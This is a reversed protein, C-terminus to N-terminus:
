ESKFIPLTFSKKQYQFFRLIINRHDFAFEEDQPLDKESIWEITEVEENEIEEGGVIKVLYTFNVNQRDENARNPTDTIQFLSIIEGTYGTEERLERLAGEGTNEDRDLFGGPITYKGPNSLHPGRRTLLVENKENVILCDITVHRKSGTGGDEFICNIM